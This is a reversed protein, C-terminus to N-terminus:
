ASELKRTKKVRRRTTTKLSLSETICQRSVHWAGPVENRVGCNRCGQAQGKEILFPSGMSHRRSCDDGVLGLGRIFLGSREAAKRNFALPRGSRSSVGSPVSAAARGGDGIPRRRNAGRRWASARSAVRAVAVGGISLSCLSQVSAISGLYDWRIM